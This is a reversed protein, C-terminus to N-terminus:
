KPYVPPAPRVGDVWEGEVAEGLEQDSFLTVFVRRYRTELDMDDVSRHALVASLFLFVQGPRIPVRCGLQPVELDGTCEGEKDWGEPGESVCFVLSYSHSNFDRRDLHLGPSSGRGVAMTTGMLGGRLPTGGTRAEAEAAWQENFEYLEYLKESTVAATTKAAEPDYKQFQRRPRGSLVADVTGLFNLVSKQAKELIVPNKHKQCTSASVRPGNGRRDWCMLHLLRRLKARLWRDRPSMGQDNEAKLEAEKREKEVEWTVHNDPNEMEVFAQYIKSREAPGVTTKDLRIGWYLPLGDQRHPNHILVTGTEPLKHIVPPNEAMEEVLQRIHRKERHSHLFRQQWGIPTTPYFHHVNENKVSIIPPKYDPDQRRQASRDKQKKNYRPM